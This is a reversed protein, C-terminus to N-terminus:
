SATELYYQTTSAANGAGTVGRVYAFARGDILPMWLRGDESTQWTFGTTPPIFQFKPESPLILRKVPMLIGTRIVIPAAIAGTLIGLFGRRTVIMNM